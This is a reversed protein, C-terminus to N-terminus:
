LDAQWQSHIPHATCKTTPRPCQSEAVNPQSLASVEVVVYHRGPQATLQCAVAWTVTVLRAHRILTTDCTLCGCDTNRRLYSIRLPKWRRTAEVTISSRGPVLEEALTKTENFPLPYMADIRVPPRRGAISYITLHWRSRARMLLWLHRASSFYMRVQIGVVQM